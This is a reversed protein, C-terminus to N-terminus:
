QTGSWCKWQSQSYQQMIAEECQINIDKQDKQVLSYFDGKRSDCKLAEYVEKMTSDISENLIYNLMNIRKAMLVFKVPVIGLELSMFVKSSNGSVSLLRGQLLTEPMTLKAIDAETLNIWSESNSLMGGLMLGQRMLLAAKYTHRGYPRENIATIIKEVSGVCKDM